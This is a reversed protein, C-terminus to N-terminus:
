TSLGSGTSNAIWRENIGAEFSRLEEVMGSKLKAGIEVPTLEGSGVPIDMNVEWYKKINIAANKDRDHVMGCGGCVWERDKLTLDHNYWGCKNCTRSSGFWRDVEYYGKGTWEAKYKLFRKFMGWGCDSISKALKHNRVMNSVVLDEIVVGDHKIIVDHSLKHLFDLRINRVRRHENQLKTKANARNNSGKEKRSLQRQLKKLKKEHKKLTKPNAVSEGDSLEAYTKIGLDVGVVKVPDVERQEIKVKREVLVSCYWQNGDQSVTLSKAKGVIERHKIIKVEGVKPVFIFNKGVRFKQPVVFGDSKNSKKKYVPYGKKSGPNIADRIARDLHRLVQQLSQSFSEKLWPYVEKVVLLEKVMEGYFKFKKDEEYKKGNEGLFHNWLFRANGGQQRLSQEQEENPYMRFKYGCLIKM